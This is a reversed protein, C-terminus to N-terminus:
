PTMYKRKTRRTGVGVGVVVGLLATVALVVWLPLTAKFFVLSVEVSENNAAIFVILLVAVVAGLIQRGSPRFGGSTPEPRGQSSM